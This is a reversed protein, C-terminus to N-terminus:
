SDSQQTCNGSSFFINIRTQTIYSVFKDNKEPGVDWEGGRDTQSGGPLQLIVQIDALLSPTHLDLATHM